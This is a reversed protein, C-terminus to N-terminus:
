YIVTRQIRKDGGSLGKWIGPLEVKIWARGEPANESFVSERKRRVNRAARKDENLNRKKNFM